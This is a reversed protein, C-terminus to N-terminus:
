ESTGASSIAPKPEVSIPADPLGPVDARYGSTIFGEAGLYRRKQLDPFQNPNLAKLNQQATLTCNNYINLEYAKSLAAEFAQRGKDEPGLALNDLEATYIEQQDETLRRPVPAARISNAVDRYVEGMRTLACIGYDGNGYSIIGVYKGEASCKNDDSSVCALAEATKLKRLLTKKNLTVRIKKYKSFEPELLEFAAHAAALMSAEKNKDSSTLQGYARVLWRYEAMAADRKKMKELLLARRYRSEYLKARPASRYKTRFKEFCDAAKRFAGDSAQLECIRWYVDAVDRRKAYKKTYTEFRAIAAKTEGFGQYYIGANYLADVARKDKPYREFYRDYLKASTEFDAIREYFQALLWDNKQTLSSKPYTKRMLEGMAIANDLEDAQNYILVASYAAKDAYQSGPFDDQFKRFRTAVLALEEQKRTADSSTRANQEASQI